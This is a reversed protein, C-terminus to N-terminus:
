RGLLFCYKSATHCGTHCGAPCENEKTDLLPHSPALISELPSDSLNPYSSELYRCCPDLLSVIQHSSRPASKKTKSKQGCSGKGINRVLLGMKRASLSQRSVNRVLTNLHQPTLLTGQDYRIIGKMPLDGQDYRYYNLFKIGGISTQQNSTSVRGLGFGLGIALRLTISITLHLSQFGISAKRSTGRGGRGSGQRRKRNRRRRFRSSARM